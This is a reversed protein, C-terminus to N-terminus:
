EEQLAGQVEPRTVHGPAEAAGSPAGPESEPTDAAAATAPAGVLEQEVSVLSRLATVLRRYSTTILDFVESPPIDGEELEIRVMGAALAKRVAQRNTHFSFAIRELADLAQDTLVKIDPRHKAYVNIKHMGALAGDSDTHSVRKLEDGILGRSEGSGMLEELRAFSNDLDVHAELIKARDPTTMLNQERALAGAMTRTDRFRQAQGLRRLAGATRQYLSAPIWTANSEHVAFENRLIEEVILSRRRLLLPGVNITEFWAASFRAWWNTQVSLQVPTIRPEDAALRVLDLLPVTANLEDIAPWVREHAHTQTGARTGTYEAAIKIASSHRNRVCLDVTAALETLPKRVIRMPTRIDESTKEPILGRFDVTALAALAEISKWVPDLHSRIADQNVELSQQLHDSVAEKAAAITTAPDTLLEEPVNCSATLTEYLQPELRKLAARLFGGAGSGRVYTFVNKLANVHQAVARARSHFGHRLAPISVDALTEDAREVRQKVAELEHEKIVTTIDASGFWARVRLYFRQLLPLEQFARLYTTPPPLTFLKEPVTYQENRRM